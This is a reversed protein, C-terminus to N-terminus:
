SKGREEETENDKEELWEELSGHEELPEPMQVLDDESFRSSCDHCIYCSDDFVEGHPEKSQVTTWELRESLCNPCM